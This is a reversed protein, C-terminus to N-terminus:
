ANWKCHFMQVQYQIKLYQNKNTQKQYISICNSKTNVKFGKVKSVESKQELLTKKRIASKTPKRHLCNHQRCIFATKKTEKWDTYSKGQRILTTLVNPLIDFLFPLCEQREDSILPFSKWGKVISYSSLHLIKYM